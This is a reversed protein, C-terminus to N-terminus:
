HTDAVVTFNEVRGKFFLVQTNGIQGGPMSYFRYLHSDANEMRILEGTGLALTTQAFTMGKQIQHSRILKKLAPNWYSYFKFPDDPFFLTDLQFFYIQNQPDYRTILAAFQEGQKEIVLYIGIGKKEFINKVQLPTGSSVLYPFHSQLKRTSSNMRFFPTQFGAKWWLTRGVLTEAEDLGSIHFKPIIAYADPNSKLSISPHPQPLILPRNRDHWIWVIRGIIILLGITVWWNFRPFKVKRTMPKNAPTLKDYSVKTCGM